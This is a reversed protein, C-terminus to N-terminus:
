LITLQRRPQQQHVVSLVQTSHFFYTHDHCFLNNYFLYCAHDDEKRYPM